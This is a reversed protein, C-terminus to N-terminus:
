QNQNLYLQCDFSDTQHNKGYNACTPDLHKNPCDTFKHKQSCRGCHKEFKCNASVHGFKKCNYCRIIKVGQQIFYSPRYFLHDIFLGQNEAKTADKASSLTLRITGLVTKDRKVFRNAKVNFFNLALNDITTEQATETFVEWWFQDIQSSLPPPNESQLKPVSFPKMGPASFM